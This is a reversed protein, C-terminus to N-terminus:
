TRAGPGSMKVVRVQIGSWLLPRRYCACPQADHRRPVVRQQWRMLLCRFKARRRDLGRLNGESLRTSGCTFQRDSGTYPHVRHMGHRMCTSRSRRAAAAVHGRIPTMEPHWKIAIQQPM